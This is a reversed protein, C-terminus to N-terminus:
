VLKIGSNKLPVTRLRKGTARYIANLVAPAAVAITPEGVGGWEKGGGQIIITEVKPMQYLRISNFTDFNKQVVAGKEITIEEEFLASLGYVFSGSVQRAVQAPNVVYGPDTAAVFRHIKVENGNTVSLECAAAVYSGFSRMQAVGRFVGPAAPKTWGIGDAVANLVAIARPHNGMHKRRFEVADVGTAEAMEDMFTEIFVANQNVNVGRWFGPPVHTNRMAHDITINPFSYTFGHEGSDDLGQFALPDKGKNAAVVAPRVAALISQGSLRMNIGTINKKSDIGATLKCMMVPHYRGQTMDEERTWILKIPTGPMQKAINVAQTTYDQFAGRRGFGGGLNVKYVNCKEAPLGSAAIVAALSAEGDQTPVWAECSDTTWKATATQPELTAHNLFPYFYTAELTKSASAIGSNSDGHKNHVFADDANLGEELMKKISASSVNGNAGNDWVINVQDLATKAQWFTDAVVAVASDGVQVVKKVGKMSQAKTADYSKVKGGFVPSEKINAVLMGPMKLDIAYVQKGTVKDAVGDIRNVPKGILQWEKPDKLPVEKPVELQSAAVSVKGFTTKKGSPTHTIVSDKAVCEAAPVNWQNAAAQILMMRAAAGGKRVYQESTRIGRSGGTSYSGWALKRKLNEAPSPYDYSVKKWDCQLEEAVMQALGTITGQGMESRVIRVVVDDNPKVVVWIGIEPSALPTMATTGTGMAAHAASMFSFDFGIALGTAIASSGIVFHRRSTNTNTTM